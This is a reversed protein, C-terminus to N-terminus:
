GASFSETTKEIPDVCFGSSRGYSYLVVEDGERGRVYCLGRQGEHLKCERPCVDCQLRGDDLLHWYKTPHTVPPSVAM